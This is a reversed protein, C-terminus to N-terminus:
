AATASQATMRGVEAIDSATLTWNAAAVNQALQELQTVGAIVCAVAPQALLWSIALELLTRNHARCFDELRSIRVWDAEKIFKMEHRRPTALRTGEPIANESYKGTLLGSALPYYPILSLGHRQLAPIVDQEIGRALLSYEGQFSIFHGLGHRAATEHAEDIQVGSFNSAGIYRVKGQRVLDDLARLTEEIPTDAQPWHLQFLDIWDSRLRKLSADVASMIYRRSAGKLAGADDMQQGFKTALVIDKRREALIEGLYAESGGRNGYVDATDFFTVGLDIAKDVLARARALDCRHVFNNCGMGVVSVRLNSNGVNRYKMLEGLSPV